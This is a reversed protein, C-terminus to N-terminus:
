DEPSWADKFGRLFDPHPKDSFWDMWDFEGLVLQDGLKQKDERSLRRYAAAGDRARLQPLLWESGYGVNRRPHMIALAENLSRWADHLHEKIERKHAYEGVAERDGLGSVVSRLLDRVFEAGESPDDYLRQGLGRSLNSLHEEALHQELPPNRRTM